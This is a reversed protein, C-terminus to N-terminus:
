LVEFGLLEIEDVLQSHISEDALATSLYKKNDDAFVSMAGNYGSLVCGLFNAGGSIGVGLSLEKCLKQAMAIADNDDVRIIDDVLNKPYLGPIIEDSLGQIKHPGLSKGLTLISSQLPELAFMKSNHKEKFYKGCGHLTGATGVGAIFCPYESIKAEIEPATTEYHAIMNYENEFQYTLFCGKSKYEEAKKFASEFDDTLELQAGYLKLLKFREESMFRPICITIPNGLYRSIAAFSIGMNGSTVECIPTNESIVGKEYANKLIYFAVRDKISGSLNYWEAKIYAYRNEGKFRYNIKILPTNGILRGLQEFKNVFDM